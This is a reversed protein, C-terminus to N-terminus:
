VKVKEKETKIFVKVPVGLRKCHNIVYKTERSTGDFVLVVDAYEIITINRKLPAARGYKDYEPLSETLKIGNKM